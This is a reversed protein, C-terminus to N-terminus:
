GEGILVRLNRQFANYDDFMPLGKLKEITERPLSEVSDEELITLTEEESFEAGAVTWDTYDKNAPCVHQCIMCGVLCSHWEPDVWAPFEDTGENLYTICRTADILFRGEVIAGTPCRKSCAACKRCADMMRLDQWDDSSCPLDSLFVRMRFYSGLGEIYAINNKGYTALGSHVALAKEPLVADALRYGRELLYRSLTESVTKDTHHMYTPPIIAPYQKSGLEFTARVKPQPAATIIMSRATPFTTPSEFGWQLGYRSVIEDYFDRDLLEQDLLRGVDHQLDPLHQVSVVASRFGCTALRRQLGQVVDDM